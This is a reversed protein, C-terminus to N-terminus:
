FCGPVGCLEGRNKKTILRTALKCTLKPGCKSEPFRDLRIVLLEETYWAGFRALM